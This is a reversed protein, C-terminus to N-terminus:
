NASTSCSGRAEETMPVDAIRRTPMRLSFEICGNDRYTSCARHWGAGVRQKGFCALQAAFWRRRRGDRRRRSRDTADPTVYPRGGILLSTGRDRALTQNESRISDTGGCRGLAVNPTVTHSVHGPHFPRAATTLLPRVQRQAPPNKRYADHPIHRAPQRSPRDRALLSHLSGCGAEPLDVFGTTGPLSTSACRKSERVNGPWAYASLVAM